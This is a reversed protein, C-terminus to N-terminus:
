ITIKAEQQLEKIIEEVIIRTIIDNPNIINSRSIIRSIIKDASLKNKNNM